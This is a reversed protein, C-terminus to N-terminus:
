PLNKVASGSPFGRGTTYQTDLVYLTHVSTRSFLCTKKGLNNLRTSSVMGWGFVWRLVQLITPICSMETSPNFRHCYFYLTSYSFRQQSICQKQPLHDPFFKWPCCCTCLTPLTPIQQTLLSHSNSHFLAM